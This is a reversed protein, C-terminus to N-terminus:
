RRRRFVLPGALALLGLTGPAPIQGRVAGGPHPANHVNVYWNLPNALVGALDADFLNSGVLQGSFDIRVPGNTGFAGQHIHAAAVPLAINGVTINWSITNTVDDIELHALGFGDPDGVNPLVEQAGILPIDFVFVTASASSSVAAAVIAAALLPSSLKLPM